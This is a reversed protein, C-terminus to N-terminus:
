PTPRLRQLGAAVVIVLGKILLQVNPDVSNLALVNNLVGLLLAGAVTGSVSGRGGSLATGGIVVAAIADLEYGSGDNPSGQNLQGAHIIGALAALLGSLGYVLVKVRTVAVGSLRAAKENGGIAYVHRAFASTRLFVIAAVAVVAFIVAPIPVLGNFTREGLLSFAVPAEGPGDGYAIAVGQGGSWIRALGRAVQLGALTVIFAQIGFVASAIGQLLGFVLGAALVVLVAPLVGFGDDVLLVASGVAALGLVAGVSLDIGGVLIVFTMGVAIIGIEAIARVVNFLNEGSLFVLEGDHSPSFVIAAALVLVLGFLSQFRFLATVVDRRPLFETTTM